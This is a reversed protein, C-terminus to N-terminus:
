KPWTKGSSLRSPLTWGLASAWHLRWVRTPIECVRIKRWKRRIHFDSRPSQSSVQLQYRTRNLELECRRTAAACEKSRQITDQMGIERTHAISTLIGHYRQATIESDVIQQELRHGDSVSDQLRLEPADLQVCTAARPSKPEHTKLQRCEGLCLQQELFEALVALEINEDELRSAEERQQKLNTRICTLDRECMKGSSNNQAGAKAARSEDLVVQLARNQSPTSETARQLEAQFLNREQTLNAIQTTAEALLEKMAELKVEAEELALVQCVNSAVVDDKQRASSVLASQLLSVQGQLTVLEARMRATEAASGAVDFPVECHVYSHKSTLHDMGVPTLATQSPSWAVLGHLSFCALLGLSISLSPRLSM